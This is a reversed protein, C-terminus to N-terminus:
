IEGGQAFDFAGGKAFDFAGGQAFDFPILIEIIARKGLAM